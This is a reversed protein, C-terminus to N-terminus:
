NVMKIPIKTDLVTKDIEYFASDLDVIDDIKNSAYFIKLSLYTTTFNYNSDFKKGHFEGQVPILRNDVTLIKNTIKISEQDIMNDDIAVYFLRIVRYGKGSRNIEYICFIIYRAERPENYNLYQSSIGTFTTDMYLDFTEDKDIIKVEDIINGDKDLFSFSTLSPKNVTFLFTNDLM